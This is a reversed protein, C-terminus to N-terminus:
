RAPEAAPQRRLRVRLRSALTRGGGVLGQPLFYVALVFVGGLLLPWHQSLVDSLEDRVVYVFAAGLMPGVLTGKGGVVVAITVLVLVDFSAVSPSVYKQQHVTLAGAFGAVAGAIAFAALKYLLVDYGLSSMRVENERIGTLARGFPSAVVVRLVVYGVVVCALVYWYVNDTDNLLDSSGSGFVPLPIGYLGNSGGTVSDWDFSLQYFLQGLALTLMLFYIGRSRVAVLGVAAAVLAAAGTAVALQAFLNPTVHIAVLATAYAGIGLFAPHGLSPLGAYGILVDLSAAFLAFVLIETLLFTRFDGLVLPATALLALGAARVGMGVALSL